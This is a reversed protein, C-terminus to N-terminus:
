PEERGPGLLPCLFFLDGDDMEDNDNVDVWWRGGLYGVDGPGYLTMPGNAGIYLEQFRGERPLDGLGFTDFYLGQSVVYIVGASSSGRGTDRDDAFSSTAGLMSLGLVAFTGALKRTM